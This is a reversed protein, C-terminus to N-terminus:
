QIKTYSKPRLNQIEVTKESLNNISIKLKTSKGFLEIIDIM